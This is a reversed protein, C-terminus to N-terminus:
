FASDSYFAFAAMAASLRSLTLNFRSRIGAVEKPVAIQTPPTGRRFSSAESGLAACCLSPM